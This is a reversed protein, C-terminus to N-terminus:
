GLQVARGSRLSEEAALCLAVSALGDHVTAAPASGTRVARLFAETQKVLDFAHGGLPVPIREAYADRDEGGHLWLEQRPAEDLDQRGTWSARLSGEEGVLELYVHHGYAAISRTVLAKAGGFKLLVDLNEWNGEAGSRSTAWATLESPEGHAPALYWRALDLYHVPEELISSGVKAPDSKWGGAGVLYPRRWLNLKLHLPRGVAGEDILDKVASFLTFVRMELGNAAVKGSREAAAVVRECGEMDIALPKEVLVHLGADLCAVAHEAHLHNPSAIIAADVGSALFTALETTVPVGWDRKVRAATEPTRVMVMGLEAGAAALANRHAAAWRGAGILGVRM